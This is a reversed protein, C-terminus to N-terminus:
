SQHQWPNVPFMGTEGREARLGDVGRYLGPVARPVLVSYNLFRTVNDPKHHMAIGVFLYSVVPGAAVVYGFGLGM